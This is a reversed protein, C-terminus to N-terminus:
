RSHRFTPYFQHIGYVMPSVDYFMEPGVYTPTIHAYPDVPYFDCSEAPFACQPPALVPHAILNPLYKVFQHQPTVAQAVNTFERPMDEFQSHSREMRHDKAYPSSIMDTPFFDRQTSMEHELPLSDYARAIHEKGLNKSSASFLPYGGNHGSKDGSYSSGQQHFVHQYLHPSPTSGMSSLNGDSAGSSSSWSHM